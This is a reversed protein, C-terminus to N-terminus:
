NEYEWYDRISDLIEKITRNINSESKAQNKKSKSNTRTEETNTVKEIIIQSIFKYCSNMKYLKSFLAKSAKTRIKLQDKVRIFVESSISRNAMLNDIIENVRTEPFKLTIFDYFGQYIDNNFDGFHSIFVKYAQLYAALVVKIDKNKYEPVSGVYKLIDDPLGKVARAVISTRSDIRHDKKLKDWVKKHNKEFIKQIAEKSTDKSKKPRGKKKESCSISEEKSLANVIINRLTHGIQTSVRYSKHEEEDTSIGQRDESTNSLEEFNFNQSQSAQSLELQVPVLNSEDSDEKSVSIKDESLSYSQYDDKSLNSIWMSLQNTPNSKGWGYNKLDSYSISKCSDQKLSLDEEENSEEFKDKIRNEPNQAVESNGSFEGGNVGFNRKTNFDEFQYDMISDRAEEDYEILGFHEDQLNDCRYQSDNESEHMIGHFQSVSNQARKDFCNNWLNNKLEQENYSCSEVESLCFEDISEAFM